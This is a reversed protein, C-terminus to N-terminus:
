YRRQHPSPASTPRRGSLRCATLGCPVRTPPVPSPLIAAALKFGPKRARNFMFMKTGFRDTLIKVLLDSERYAQRSIVIGRFKEPASQM